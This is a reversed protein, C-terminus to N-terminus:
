QHFELTFSDRLTSIVMKKDNSVGRDVGYLGMAPRGRHVTWLMKACEAWDEERSCNVSKAGGIRLWERISALVFSQNPTAGAPPIGTKIAAAYDIAPKTSVTTQM